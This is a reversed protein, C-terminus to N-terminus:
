RRARDLLARAKRKAITQEPELGPIADIPADLVHELAARWAADDGARRAWIEAYLM